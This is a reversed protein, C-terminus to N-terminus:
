NLHQTLDFPKVTVLTSIASKYILQTSVVRNDNFQHLLITHADFAMIVGQLKIGNVLYVSVPQKSEEVARLFNEQLITSQGLSTTTNTTDTM